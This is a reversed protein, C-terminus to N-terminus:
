QCELALRLNALNQRMVSIYDEGGRAQEPTLGEIPNLVLTKAGTEEAITESVEKDILTEFFIHTAGEARVTDIIEKMRAPSPEEEPSIGSIAIQKLDYRKVFYSFASHSTVITRRTCSALGAKIDEDLKNLDETLAALNAKYAAEGEPNAQSLAWEVTQAEKLYLQPDLWLHPDLHGDNRPTGSSSDERGAGKTGEGTTPLPHPSPKGEGEMVELGATAEVVMPGGEKLDKVVREAWAELGAGQYIFVDADHIATIDGPTPEWDHPETGAPVLDVVEAREGGIRKALFELPYFTTVVVPGEGVGPKPESTPSQPEACAAIFVASLIISAARWVGSRYGDNRPIGSTAMAGM